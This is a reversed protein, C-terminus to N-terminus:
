TVWHDHTSLSIRFLVDRYWSNPKLDLAYIWSALRFPRIPTEQSLFFLSRRYFWSVLLDRLLSIGGRCVGVSSVFLCKCLTRTVACSLGFSGRPVRRLFEARLGFRIGRSHWYFDSFLEKRISKICTFRTATSNCNINVTFHYKVDSCIDLVKTSSM